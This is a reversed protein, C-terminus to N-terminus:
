SDPRSIRSHNICGFSALNGRLFGLMRVNMTRAGRVPQSFLRFRTASALMASRRTRPTLDIVLTEAVTSACFIGEAPPRYVPEAAFFPVVHPRLRRLKAKLM